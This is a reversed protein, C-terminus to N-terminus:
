SRAGSPSSSASAPATEPDCDPCIGAALPRRAKLLISTAHVCQLTDVSLQFPAHLRARQAIHPLNANAHGCGTEIAGIQQLAVAQIRRRRPHGLHEAQLTGSHDALDAGAAAPADTVAHTRQQGTAAHGLLHHHIRAMGQRHGFAQAQLFRRRQRFDIGGGPEVQELQRAQLRALLHQQM